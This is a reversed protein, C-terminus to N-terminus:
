MSSKLRLYATFTVTVVINIQYYLYFYKLLIYKEKKMSFQLHQNVWWFKSTSLKM